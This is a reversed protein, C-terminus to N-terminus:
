FAKQAVWKSGDIGSVAIDTARGLFDDVATVVGPWIKEYDDGFMAGGPRVFPWYNAIDERVSAEDHGADLYILDAQLDIERLVAAADRSTMPLPVFHRDLGARAVNALFHHYLSPYGNVLRLRDRWERRLWHESSGLWTDVCLISVDQRWRLARRTMHIASQ